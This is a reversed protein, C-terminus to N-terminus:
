ALKVWGAKILWVLGRRLFAEQGAPLGALLTAVPQVPSEAWCRWLPALQDYDPIVRRAYRHCGLERVRDYDQRSPVAPLMLLDQDALIRTAYGAFMGFPDMRDPATAMPLGGHLDPTHRREDDLRAWLAQYQGIVVQWDYVRRARERGAAGMRQRLEADGLLRAFAQAAADVDVAVLECLQGCYFDYNDLGLDYREALDVGSGAPPSVTPVRFGDLGDRVTDRYGDWDSVVCPLGAAMAEIPTLGFTEQVNDSLSTFIDAAAWAARWAQLNGGDAPHHVVQPALVRQAEAFADRIAENAYQGCMVLHIRRQPRQQACRQLAMLLPHPHAKAHFSLRGAFLVVPEDGVVGLRTRAAAREAAGFEFDATHVGLPIVPLQPLEFRSAGLRWRLYEAQSQLVENVAARAAHSTCVLADWPRVPATLLETLGTMVAHTAITHTVGCLSYRREGVRARRWAPEALGPMPLFLCGSDENRALQEPSLVEVPGQYGAEQLAARLPPAQSSQSLLAQLGEPGASGAMARLFGAGASQRGMLKAGRTSYGDSSFLFAARGAATHPRM